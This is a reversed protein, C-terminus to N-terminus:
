PNDNRAYLHLIIMLVFGLGMIVYTWVSDGNTILHAIVGFVFAWFASLLIGIIWFGARTNQLLLLLLFLGIGILLCFAPHIGKLQNCLIATLVSLFISDFLIINGLFLGVVFCIIGLIISIAILIGYSFLVAM